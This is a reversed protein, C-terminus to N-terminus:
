DTYQSGASLTISISKTLTPAPVPQIPLPAPQTLLPTAQPVNLKYTPDGKVPIFKRLFKRNRLTIRRSGDVMVKYQRHPLVEMVKGRKNWRTPQNGVQNQVMAHEKVWYSCSKHNKKARKALALVRYDAIEQWTSSMDKHTSFVPPQGQRSSIFDKLQRGMLLFAPSLGKDRDPANRYQLLARTVSDNDLQGTPSVHKRLLRKISLNNNQTLIIYGLKNFM